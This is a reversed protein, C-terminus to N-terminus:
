VLCYYYWLCSLACAVYLGSRGQCVNASTMAFLCSQSSFSWIVQRALMPVCQTACDIRPELRVVAQTQLHLLIHILFLSAMLLDAPTAGSTFGLFENHAFSSTHWHRNGGQSQFGSSAVPLRFVPILSWVFRVSTRWFFNKKFSLYSVTAVLELHNQYTRETDLIERTVKARRWERKADPDMDPSLPTSMLVMSTVTSDLDVSMKASCCFYLPQYRRQPLFPVLNHLFPLNSHLPPADWRQNCLLSYLNITQFHPRLICTAKCHM